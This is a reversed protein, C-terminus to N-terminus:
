QNNLKKNAESLIKMFAESDRIAQMSEPVPPQDTHTALHLQFWKVDHWEGLKYGIKKFDGIVEFGLAKHFGESKANPIAVGAYVNFYGQLKLLEFLTEYLLRGIGKGHAAPSLYVTSEVSWQYATKYRHKSGYAFGVIQDHQLCVLWPYHETNTTIREQYEAASPVEYEFTIATDLVYPRYIDLVQQTDNEGILRITLENEM